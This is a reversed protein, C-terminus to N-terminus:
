FYPDIIFDNENLVENSLYEDEDPNSKPDSDQDDDDMPPPMTPPVWKGDSDESDSLSFRELRSLRNWNSNQLEDEENTFPLLFDALTIPKGM